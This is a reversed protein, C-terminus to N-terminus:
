GAPTRPRWSRPSTRTPERPAPRDAHLRHDLLRPLRGLPEGRRGQVPKNKFSPTLWIATTGLKKIYNIRDLMGKLDGGHYYGKHSPRYGHTDFGDAPLDEAPDGDDNAESGDEFRDAM